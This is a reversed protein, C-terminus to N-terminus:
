EAIETRMTWRFVVEQYPAGGGPEGTREFHEYGGHHPLKIKEEHPGVAQVRSARPISAPGGELVARVSRAASTTRRTVEM